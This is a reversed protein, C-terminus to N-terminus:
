LKENLWSIWHVIIYFGGDVKESGFWYYKLLWDLTEYLVFSGLILFINKKKDFDFDMRSMDLVIVIPFDCNWVFCVEM